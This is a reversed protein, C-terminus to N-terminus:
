SWEDDEDESVFEDNDSEDEETVAHFIMYELAREAADVKGDRNIDFLKNFM